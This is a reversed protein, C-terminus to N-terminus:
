HVLMWICWYHTLHHVMQDLGLSCWFLTNSWLTRAARQAAIKHQHSIMRSSRHAACRVDATFDFGTPYSKFRGLWRPGAKLRDMVFHVSGDVFAIWYLEPRGMWMVIYLTMAAHIGVHVLLPPVFDWGPKFKGLCYHGIPWSQLIFDAAFHKLQYVVLLTFIITVM